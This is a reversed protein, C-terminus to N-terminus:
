TFFDITDEFFWDEELRSQEKKQRASVTMPQVKLPLSSSQENTVIQLSNSNWSKRADDSEKKRLNKLINAALHTDSLNSIKAKPTLATTINKASKTSSSKTLPSKTVM